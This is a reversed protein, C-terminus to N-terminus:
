YTAYVNDKKAGENWRRTMWRIPKRETKKGESSSKSQSCKTQAGSFAAILEIWRRMVSEISWCVCVALRFWSSHTQLYETDVCKDGLIPSRFETSQTLLAYQALSAAEGAICWRVASIKNVNISVENWELRIFIRKTSICLPNLSSQHHPRYKQNPLKHILLCTSSSSSAIHAPTRLQWSNNARKNREPMFLNAFPWPRILKKFFWMADKQSRLTFMETCSGRINAKVLYCLACRHSLYHFM